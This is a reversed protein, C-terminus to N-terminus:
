EEKNKIFALVCYIIGVVSGICGIIFTYSAKGTDKLDYIGFILCGIGLLILILGLILYERKIKRKTDM